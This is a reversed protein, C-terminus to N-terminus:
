PSAKPEDELVEWHFPNPAARVAVETCTETRVFLGLSMRFCTSAKGGKM